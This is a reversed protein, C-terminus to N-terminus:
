RAIRVEDMVLVGQPADPDNLTVEIVRGSAVVISGERVGAPVADLVLVVVPSARDSAGRATCVLTTQTGSVQVRDVVLEWAGAVSRGVYLGAVQGRASEPVDYMASVIRSPTDSWDLVGTSGTARYTVTVPSPVAVPVSAQMPLPSAIPVATVGAYGDNTFTQVSGITGYGPVQSTFYMPVSTAVLSKDCWASHYPTNYSEWCCTNSVYPRNWSSRVVFPTAWNRRYGYPNYVTHRPRWDFWGSHSPRVAHNDNWGYSAGLGWGGTGFSLGFSLGSRGWDNHDGRNRGNWDHQDNGRGNWDRGDHDRGDRDRGDRDRDNGRGGRDDRGVGGLSGVPSPVRPTQPTSGVRDDRMALARDVIREHPLKQADPKGEGIPRMTGTLPARPVGAPAPRSAGRAEGVGTNPAAPVNTQNAREQALRYIPRGVDRSGGNSGSTSPVSRVIPNSPGTTSGRPALTTAPREVRLNNQERRNQAIEAVRQRSTASGNNPAAGGNNTTRSPQSVRAPTPVVRREEARSQQAPASPRAREYLNSRGSPSPSSRPAERSPAPRSVPQSQREQRAPAPRSVPAAQRREEQRNKMAQVARTRTNSNGSQAMAMPSGAVLMMCVVLTGATRTKM